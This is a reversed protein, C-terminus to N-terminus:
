GTSFRLLTTSQYKEGPMLITSPFGPHNPSDPFHQTELCLGANSGYPTHNKGMLAGDPFQATYLQIGPESTYIEMIRGSASDYLTAALGLEQGTKSLVFNHDYGGAIQIQLDDSQIDAGISKARRFDFPTGEVSRKEGTPIMREDVPLFHSANIILEHNLVNDRSSNLNFYSHQTLNIITKSDSKATYTFILANEHSLFYRVNISLGGPYGEEGDDSFYFFDIGAGSETQLPDASWVVKDFGKYGGHLHHSSHNITLAHEIGDFSFKGYAIRNAYRGIISGIYHSSRLYEELTDFGLVIDDFNGYSDPVRLSTITCGYNIVKMELGAQNLLTYETVEQGQTTKGFSRSLINGSGMNILIFIESSVM